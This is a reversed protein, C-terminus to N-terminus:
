EGDGSKASVQIHTTDSPSSLDEDCGVELSENNKRPLTPSTNGKNRRIAKQSNNTVLKNKLDELKALIRMKSPSKIYDARLSKEFVNIEKLIIEKCNACPKEKMNIEKQIDKIEKLTAM